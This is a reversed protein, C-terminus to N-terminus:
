HHKKFSFKSRCLPCTSQGSSKFWRYLCASHFNHHCTPCVKNPTSHDVANIISYCIACDEYGAFKSDVNEKFHKVADMISMNQFNIMYQFSRIWAQWKKEKIGVRSLGKVSIQSLPYDVPLSILIEMKQEDIECSCTVEFVTKNVKMKFKEDMSADELSLSDLIDDILIPSIYTSIFTNLRNKLQIDRISSFWKRVMSGGIFRMMMYLLNVELKLKESKNDMSDGDHEISYNSIYDFGSGDPFRFTSVDIYDVLLALTKYILSEGLQELYKDKIEQTISPFHKLILYWNWLYALSDSESFNAVRDVLVQPLKVDKILEKDLATDVVLKDQVQPLLKCIMAISLRQIKIIPSHLYEFLTTYKQELLKVPIYKDLVFTLIDIVVLLPGSTQQVKLLEFLYEIVGDRIDDKYDHLADEDCKTFLAKTLKFTFYSLELPQKDAVLMDLSETCLRITFESLKEKTEQPFMSDSTGKVNILYNTGFELLAIRVPIFKFDYSIDCDLWSTLTNLMMMFRQPPLLPKDNISKASLMINIMLLSKLGPGLIEKTSKIGIISAATRNRYTFFKDSYIADHDCLLLVTMKKYNTEISKMSEDSLTCTGDSKEFVYSAIRAYVRYAYFQIACNKTNLLRDLYKYPGSIDFKGNILSEFSGSSFFEDLYIEKLNQLADHIDFLENSLFSNDSIIESLLMVDTALSSNSTLLQKSGSLVEAYFLLGNLNKSSISEQKEGFDSFLYLSTGFVNSVSLETIPESPIAEEIDSILTKPLLKSLTDTNLTEISKRITLSNHTEFFAVKLAGFYAHIFSDDSTHELLNALLRKSFVNEQSKILYALFDENSTSFQLIPTDQYYRVCKEVFSIINSSQVSQKYLKQLIEPNLLKFLADDHNDEQINETSQDLLYAKVSPADEVHFDNIQNLNKLILNENGSQQLCVFESDVAKSVASSDSLNSNWYHLLVKFASEPNGKAIFSEITPIADDILNKGQIINMIIYTDIIDFTLIPYEDTEDHLSEVANSLLDLVLESDNEKLLAVFNRCFQLQHLVKIRSSTFEIGSSPLADLVGSNMDLLIDADDNRYIKFDRMHSLMENSIRGSSDLVKVLLVMLRNILLTQDNGHLSLYATHVFTMYNKFASVKFNPLRENKVDTEWIELYLKVKDYNKIPLFDDPLLRMLTSVIDYYLPNSGLSGLRLTELLYPESKKTTLWFSSDHKTLVTLADLIALISGSYLTFSQKKHIKLGRVAASSLNYFYDGDEALNNGENASLFLRISQYVAKKLLPDDMRFISLFESSNIISVIKVKTDQKVKIGDSHIQTLLNSFLLITSLLVRHYKARSEDKDIFREDSITDQSELTVVQSVFNIIQDIFIKWLGDLKSQDNGFTSSLDQKCLKSTSRDADFLGSLWVGITDRLYKSFKRQLTSVFQSQVKHSFTRVKRSEDIALKPYMQCWSIIAIDNKIISSNHSIKDSLKVISKERTISDHKQLGRFLLQLENSQLANPDPVGTIYNLSVEFGNTGLGLDAEAQYGSGFGFGM